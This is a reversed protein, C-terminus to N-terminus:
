SQVVPYIQNHLEEFSKPPLGFHGPLLNIDFVAEAPNDTIRIRSLVKKNSMDFHILYNNDGILISGDSLERAGRLFYDGIKHSSIVDYNSLNFHLLEGSTSNLYIGTSDRLIRISHSPVSCNNLVLSKTWFGNTTRRLIVSKTLKKTTPIAEFHTTKKRSLIQNYKKYLFPLFESLPTKKLFNNLKHLMYRDVKRLLGISVLLDGNDQFVFSNVHLLDTVAHDHTRPDRFNIRGSVIEKESIFPDIKTDSINENKFHRRLDFYNMINGKFDMCVLLDNRSSTVWISNDMLEIDHIGSCSPHWCYTIPNWMHDYIFVTSANAIAIKNGNVSIGKLGRFGGRPNPDKDRYPPEIIECSRFVKKKELNYLLLRGSPQDAFAFRCSTSILINTM